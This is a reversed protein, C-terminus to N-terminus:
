GMVNRFNKAKGRRNHKIYYTKFAGLRESFMVASNNYNGIEKNHYDIMSCVYMAYVDDFPHPVRLEKDADEPFRLETPNAEGFVEIAITSEIRGIWRGKVEDDYVNPKISDVYEIVKSMTAM